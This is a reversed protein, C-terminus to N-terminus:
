QFLDDTLIIKERGIVRPMDVKMPLKEVLGGCSSAILQHGYCVGIMKIHPYNAM